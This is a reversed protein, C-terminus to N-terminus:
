LFWGGFMDDVDEDDEEDYDDWDTAAEAVPWVKQPANPSDSNAVHATFNVGSFFQQLTAFLKTLSSNQVPKANLVVAASPQEDLLTKLVAISAQWDEPQGSYWGYDSTNKTVDNEKQLKLLKFFSLSFFKALAIWFPDTPSSRRPKNKVFPLEALGREFNQQLEHMGRAVKTARVIDQVALSDPHSVAFVTTLQDCDRRLAHVYVRVFELEIESMDSLNFM